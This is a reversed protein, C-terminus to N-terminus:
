RAAPTVHPPLSSPLRFEGHCRALVCRMPQGTEGQRGACRLTSGLTVPKPKECVRASGTVPTNRTSPVSVPSPVPPREPTVRLIRAQRPMLRPPHPHMRGRPTSPQDQDQDYLFSFARRSQRISSRLPWALPTPRRLTSSLLVHMRAGVGNNQSRHEGARQCGCAVSLHPM